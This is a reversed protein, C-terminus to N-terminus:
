HIYAVERANILFLSSEGSEFMAKEADLLRKTDVVTKEFIEVQVLANNYDVLANRIKFEVYAKSNEM